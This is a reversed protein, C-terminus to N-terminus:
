REWIPFCRSSTGSLTCLLLIASGAVRRDKLFHVNRQSSCYFTYPWPSNRPILSIHWSKSIFSTTHGIHLTGSPKYSNAPWSIDGNTYKVIEVVCHKLVNNTPYNWSAPVHMRPKDKTGTIHCGITIQFPQLTFCLTIFYSRVMEVCWMVGRKRSFCETALVHTLRLSQPLYDLVASQAQM